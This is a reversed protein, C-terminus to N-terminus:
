TKLIKISALDGAHISQKPALNTILAAACTPRLDVLLVEAVETPGRTVRCVMGQRLGADFGHDLLVM